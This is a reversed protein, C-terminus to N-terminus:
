LELARFQDRGRLEEHSRPRDHIGVVTPQELEHLRQLGGTCGAHDGSRHGGGGRHGAPARISRTRQAVDPAYRPSVDDPPRSPSAPMTSSRATVSWFKAIPMRPWGRTM